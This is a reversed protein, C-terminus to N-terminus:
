QGYSLIILSRVRQRKWKILAIAPSCTRLGISGVVSGALKGEIAKIVKHPEDIWKLVPKRLAQETDIRSFANFNIKDEFFGLITAQVEQWADFSAQITVIHGYSGEPNGMIRRQDLVPKGDPQLKPPQYFLNALFKTLQQAGEVALCDSRGSTGKEAKEQLTALDYVVDPMITGGGVESAGPPVSAVDSRATIARMCSMTYQRIRDTFEGTATLGNVFGIFRATIKESIEIAALESDDGAAAFTRSYVDEWGTPIPWAKNDFNLAHIKEEPLDAPLSEAVKSERVSYRRVYRMM